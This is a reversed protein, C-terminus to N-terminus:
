LLERGPRGPRLGSGAGDPLEGTVLKFLEKKSPAAGGAARVGLARSLALLHLRSLRFAGSGLEKVRALAATRLKLKEEETREKKAGNKTKAKELKKSKNEKGTSAAEGKTAPTTGEETRLLASRLGASTASLDLVRAELPKPATSTDATALKLTQEEWRLPVEAGTKLHKLKAGAEPHLTCEFDGGPGCYQWASLIPQVVDAAVCKAPLLKKGTHANLAYVEGKSQVPTGAATELRPGRVGKLPTRSAAEKLPLCSAGAATDFLIGSAARTGKAASVGTTSATASPAARQATSSNAPTTKSLTALAKEEEKESAGEGLLAWCLARGEEALLAKFDELSGANKLTAVTEAFDEAAPLQPAPLALTALLATGDEARPADTLAALKKAKKQEKQYDQAQKKLEPHREWCTRETHGKKGCVKCDLQKEKETPQWPHRQAAYGQPQTKAKAKSKAGGGKGAGGKGLAALLEANSEKLQKAVERRVASIDMAVPGGGRGSNGSGSAALGAAPSAAPLNLRKRALYNTLYNRLKAYDSTSSDYHLDLHERLGASCLRLLAVQGDDDDLTRNHKAEWERRRVEWDEIGQGLKEDPVATCAMLSEKDTVRSRAQSTHWRKALKRRAELGQGEPTNRVISASEGQTFGMFSSYLQDSMVTWGHDAVVASEVPSEGCAEAFNMAVRASPNAAALYNRYYFSWDPWSAETNGFREPAKQGLKTVDVLPKGQLSRAREEALEREARERRNQEQQGLELLNDIRAALNNNNELLRAAEAARREEAEAFARQQQELAQKLQQESAAFAQQQQQFAQQQQEFLARLASVEEASAM